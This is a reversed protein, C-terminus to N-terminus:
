VVQERQWALSSSKETLDPESGLRRFTYQMLGTNINSGDLFVFTMTKMQTAKAAQKSSFRQKAAKTM